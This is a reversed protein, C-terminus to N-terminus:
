KILKCRYVRCSHRKVSAWHFEESIVESEGTFVDTALVRRGSESTIGLDDFFVTMGRDHDELNFLGLAFEGGSLHRCLTVKSGDLRSPVFAPRCEPDQDIRILERNTLLKHMEETQNRVDCGLM